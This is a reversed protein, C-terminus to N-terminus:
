KKLGKLKNRGGHWTEEEDHENLQVVTVQEALVAALKGKDEV